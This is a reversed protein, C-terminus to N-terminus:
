SLRTQKIYEPFLLIKKEDKKNFLFPSVDQAMEKMDTKACKEIIQKRLVKQSNIGLKTMVHFPVDVVTNHIQEVSTSGKDVAQQILDKFLEIQELGKM